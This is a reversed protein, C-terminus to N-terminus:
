KGQGIGQAVRSADDTISTVVKPGKSLAIRIVLRRKNTIGYMHIPKAWARGALGNKLPIARM